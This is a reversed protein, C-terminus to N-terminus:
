YFLHIRFEGHTGNRTSNHIEDQTCGNFYAKHDQYGVDVLDASWGWWKEVRLFKGFHRFGDWQSSSQTNLTLIDDNVTRPAKHHIKQHFPVRNFCPASPKDLALDTSIRIGHVIEKTAALTNEPTLRNLMGLQDNTGFLGWANGQPGDKKLPLCDFPPTPSM